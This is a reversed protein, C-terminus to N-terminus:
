CNASPMLKDLRIDGHPPVFRANQGIVQKVIQQDATTTAVITDDTKSM